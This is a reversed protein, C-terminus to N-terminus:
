LDDDGEIDPLMGVRDLEAEVDPLIKNPIMRFITEQSVGLSSLKIAIDVKEMENVPLNRKADIVTYYEETFGGSLDFIDDFMQKRKELGKFFYAEYMSAKYELGLLKFARAVGSEDGSGFNANSLDPIKISKHFLRELRDALQNYFADVGALNKELFEPWHEYQELDDIIKNEKLKEVFEKTVKGPFLAVLANFRDIEDQSKSILSDHKDIILKEAEFIPDQFMNVTYEIVPVRDFPYVTDRDPDRTWKGGNNMYSESFQPYYVDCHKVEESDEWFRAAWEIDPKISDTYQVYMEHGPIMKWEPKIATDPDAEDSIWFLEYAKGHSIAQQYLESIEIDDENDDEWRAIIEEYREDESEYFVQIDGPRAAYGTLDEIAVKALPIPVRNDPDKKPAEGLISPNKGRVYMENKKYMHNKARLKSYIKEIDM